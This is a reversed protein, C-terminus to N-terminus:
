KFDTKSLRPTYSIRGGLLGITYWLKIKFPSISILLYHFILMPGGILCRDCPKYIM